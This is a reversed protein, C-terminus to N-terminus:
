KIKQKKSNEDDHQSVRCGRLGEEKILVRRQGSIGGRKIAGQALQQGLQQIRHDQGLLHPFHSARNLTKTLQM